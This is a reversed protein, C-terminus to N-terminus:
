FLVTRLRKYVHKTENEHIKIWTYRCHFTTLSWLMYFDRKFSFRLVNQCVHLFPSRGETVEAERELEFIYRKIVRQMVKQLYLVDNMENIFHSFWKVVSNM